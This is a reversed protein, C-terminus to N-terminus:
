GNGVCTGAIRKSNDLEKQWRKMMAELEIINESYLFADGTFIAADIEDIAEEVAPHMDIM